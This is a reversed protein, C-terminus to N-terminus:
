RRAGKDRQGYLRKKNEYSPQGSKRVAEHYCVEGYLEIAVKFILGM